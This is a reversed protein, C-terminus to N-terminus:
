KKVLKFLEKVRKIAEHIRHCDFNGSAHAEAAALVIKIAQAHTM